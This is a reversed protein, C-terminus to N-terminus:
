IRDILVKMGDVGIKRKKVRQIERKIQKRRKRPRTDHISNFNFDLLPYPIMQQECMLCKLYHEYQILFLENGHHSVHRPYLEELDVLNPFEEIGTSEALPLFVLPEEIITSPLEYGCFYKRERRANWDYDEPYAVMFDNMLTEQPIILTEEIKENLGFFSKMHLMSWPEPEIVKFSNLVYSNSDSCQFRDLNKSRKIKLKPIDTVKNLKMIDRPM